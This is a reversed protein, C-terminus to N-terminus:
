EPIEPIEISVIQAQPIVITRKEDVDYFFVAKQTAGIFKLNPETVQGASGSFSRYRIDVAPKEFPPHWAGDKIASAARVASLYTSIVAFCIFFLVLVTLRLEVVQRSSLRKEGFFGVFTMAALVLVVQIAVSALVWQNKLAALLFDTIESYDFINFGFSSYLGFSYVIGIGTAYLYLLSLVLTPNDRLFERVKAGSPDQNSKRAGRDEQKPKKEGRDEQKPKKQMGSDGM